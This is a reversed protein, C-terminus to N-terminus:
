PGSKIGPLVEYYAGLGLSVAALTFAALLRPGAIQQALAAGAEEPDAGAPLSEAAELM